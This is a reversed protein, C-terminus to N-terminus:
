LKRPTQPAWSPAACALGGGDVPPPVGQWVSAQPGLGGFLPVPAPREMPRGPKLPEGEPPRDAPGPASAVRPAGWPARRRWDASAGPSPARPPGPARSSGGGGGSGRALECVQKRLALVKRIRELAKRQAVLTLDDAAKFAAAKRPDARGPPDASAAELSASVLRHASEEAESFEYALANAQQLLASARELCELESLPEPGSGGGGALAFGAAERWAGGRASAASSAEQRPPPTVGM